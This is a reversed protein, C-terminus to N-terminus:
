KIANADIDNIIEDVKILIEAYTDGTIETEFYFSTPLPERTIIGGPALRLEPDEVGYPNTLVNLGLSNVVYEQADFCHDELENGYLKIPADFYKVLVFAKDNSAAHVISYYHKQYNMDTNTVDTITNEASMFPIGISFLEATTIDGGLGRSLVPMVGTLTNLVVGKCLLQKKGEYADHRFELNIKM